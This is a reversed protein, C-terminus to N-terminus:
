QHENFVQGLSVSTRGVWFGASPQNDQAHNTRGHPHICQCQVLVESDNDRPFMLFDLPKRWLQGGLLSASVAALFVYRM